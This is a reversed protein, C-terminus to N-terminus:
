DHTKKYLALLRFSKFKRMEKVIICYIYYLVFSSQQHHVANFDMAYNSLDLSILCFNVESSIM